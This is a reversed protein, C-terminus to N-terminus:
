GIMIEEDPYDVLRELHRTPVPMAMTILGIRGAFMTGIIVLKGLTSLQATIGLSLGVTGFASITEFAIEIFSKGGSAMGDAHETITLLLMATFMVIGAKVIFTSARSLLAANLKRGMVRADGNRDTGKVALLLVLFFTTVKVGGSISGPAGGIFMLLGSFVKSPITLDSMPVTNFGATRPTVSLFLANVIRSFLPMGDLVQHEEIAFFFLFGMVILGGTMMLVIKSHVSLRHRRYRIDRYIEQIVIFSIGGAIILVMIVAMVPINGSFRELNTTFLSFGANCFASISHFVSLFVPREFGAARFSFYLVVAGVLEIGLTMLVINRIIRIPDHEVVDLYYGSFIEQYHLSVRQGPLFLFMTTFTILGLGGFQILLLIVVQGFTSYLATDVTILGTVCVASVSTFFADIFPLASEGKWSFPLGLLVTGIAILGLFYTLLLVKDFPVSKRM